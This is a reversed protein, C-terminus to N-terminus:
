VPFVAPTIRQLVAHAVRHDQMEAPGVFHATHLPSDDILTDEFVAELGAFFGAGTARFDAPVLTYYGPHPAIQIFLPKIFM